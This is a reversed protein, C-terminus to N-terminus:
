KTLLMRKTQSFTKGSNDTAKISYYYVGSALSQANFIAQYIGAPQSTNVLEMAERGLGDYVKLSVTADFPLSYTILTQPNFPNPYNQDLVYDEPLNTAIAHNQNEAMKPLGGGDGNVVYAPGDDVAPDGNQSHPVTVLYTATGMNGAEDAVSFHITYV